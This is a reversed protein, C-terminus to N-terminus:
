PFTHSGARMRVSHIVDHRALRVMQTVHLGGPVKGPATQVHFVLVPSTM